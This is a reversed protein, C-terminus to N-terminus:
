PLDLCHGALIGVFRLFGFRFPAHALALRDDGALFVNQADKEAFVRCPLAM